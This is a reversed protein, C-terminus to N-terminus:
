PWSGSEYTAGPFHWLQDRTLDTFVVHNAPDFRFHSPNVWVSVRRNLAVEVRLPQGGPNIDVNRVKGVWAGSPDEVPAQALQHTPDQILYIRWLRGNDYNYPYARPYDSYRFEARDYRAVDRDYQARQAQYDQQQQQYQSQQAQYQDDQASPPPAPQDTYGSQTGNGYAPQEGNLTAPPTTTGDAGQANLQQTQAREAPTSYQTPDSPQAFAFTAGIMIAAVSANALIINRIKM